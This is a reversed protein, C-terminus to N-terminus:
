RRCAEVRVVLDRALPEFRIKRRPITSGAREERKRLRKRRAWLVRAGVGLMVLVMSVFLLMYEPHKGYSVLSFTNSTNNEICGLLERSANCTCEHIGDGLRYEIGRACAVEQTGGHHCLIIEILDHDTGSTHKARFDRRAIVSDYGHARAAACLFSDAACGDCPVAHPRSWEIAKSKDDFRVSKGLNVSVGSGKAFYHWVGYDGGDTGFEHVHSSYRLVEVWADDLLRVPVAATDAYVVPNHADVRSWSWHTLWYFWRPWLGYWFPVDTEDCPRDGHGTFRYCPLIMTRTRSVRKIHFTHNVDVALM